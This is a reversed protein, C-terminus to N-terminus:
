QMENNANQGLENLATEARRKIPNARTIASEAERGRLAVDSSAPGPLLRNTLALVDAVLQPALAQSYKLAWAPGGVMVEADGHILARVIRRAAVDADLSILPLNDLTAFLAYERRHQGKITAQRPSGTRMLGPCVTTVGVGDQALEARLAQGLGAAAFKSVSYSSLHPVALKGAVSAVILVRGRSARLWPLAATTVRLPGLANVELSRRFDAESLNDLPGNQIVGAVNAVVDLQGYTAAATEIARDIDSQVTVDGVAIQASVGRASLDQQARRLEAEDRAMLTVRAGYRGLERALALGLGRSGGTILVSKGALLYPAKFTRRFILALAATLLLTRRSGSRRRRPATTANMAGTQGGGPGGRMFM